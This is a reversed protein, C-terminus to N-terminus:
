KFKCLELEDHLLQNIEYPNEPITIPESTLRNFLDHTRNGGLNGYLGRTRGRFSQPVQLNVSSILFRRGESCTTPYLYLTITVGSDYLAVTIRNYDKKMFVGASNNWQQGSKLEISMPEGPSTQVVRVAVSGDSEYESDHVDIQM